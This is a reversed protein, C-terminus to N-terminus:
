QKIFLLRIFCCVFVLFRFIWGGREASGPLGLCTEPALGPPHIPLDPGGPLPLSAEGTFLEPGQLLRGAPPATAGCGDVFEWILWAPEQAARPSYCIGLAWVRGGDWVGRECMACTCVQVYVFM